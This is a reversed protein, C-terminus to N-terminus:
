GCFIRQIIRGFRGTLRLPAEQVIFITCIGDRDAVAPSRGHPGRGLTARFTTGAPTVFAGGAGAGSRAGPTHAPIARGPRCRLFSAEIGAHSSIRCEELGLWITRWEPVGLHRGVYSRLALPMFFNIQGAAPTRPQENSRIAPGDSRGAARMQLHAAVLVAFPESLTGAAYAALLADTPRSSEAESSGSDSVRPAQATRVRRILQIPPACRPDPRLEGFIPELEAQSRWWADARPVLRPAPARQVPHRCPRPAPLPQPHNDADRQAIMPWGTANSFPQLLKVVPSPFGVHRLRAYAIHVKGRDIVRGHQGLELSAALLAGRPRLALRYAGM